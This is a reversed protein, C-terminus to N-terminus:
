KVATHGADLLSFSRTLPQCHAVKLKSRQLRNPKIEGYFSCHSLYQTLQGTGAAEDM